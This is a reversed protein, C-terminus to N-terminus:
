QTSELTDIMKLTLSCSHELHPLSIREPTDHSSQYEPYPWSPDSFPLTRTLSLMPIRIDPFTKGQELESMAGTEILNGQPELQQFATMLRRNIESNDNSIIKLVHAYERGLMDISLVNRIQNALVQNHELYLALGFSEPLILLRYSFQLDRRKSLERMVEIGVVVGSLGENAVASDGLCACLVITEDREGPIVAEGLKMVGYSFDTKIIVRYQEETLTAKLNKSCCLGWTREDYISCSPIADPLKSHTYLHEFLEETAVTGEFGLSYAPVHLSNDKLSFITKGEITTLSAEHCVWKEPVLGAGCGTGTQYEHTIMPMQNSLATLASDYADSVAHRPLQWLSQIMQEMSAEKPLRVIYQSQGVRETELVVPNGKPGRATYWLDRTLEDITLDFFDKSGVSLVENRGIRAVCCKRIARAKKDLRSGDPYCNKAMIRVNYNWDEQYLSDGDKILGNFKKKFRFPVKCIEEPYHRFTAYDLGLGILLIQANIQALRDYLSGKGFCTRPLDSLLEDAGAGLGAVSFIPDRSRIVNPLLRFYESIPGITAPTNQVDFVEGKCFSYSYAPVLITGEPGIVEQLASIFLACVQEINKGGKPRGLMGLSAQLFLVNGKSLGVQLFGEVLDRYTYNWSTKSM